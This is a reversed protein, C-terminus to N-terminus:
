VESQNTKIGEIMKSHYADCLGGTVTAIGGGGRKSMGTTRQNEHMTVILIAEM